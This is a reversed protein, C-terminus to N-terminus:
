HSLPPPQLDIPIAGTPLKINTAESLRSLPLATDVGLVAAVKRSFIM